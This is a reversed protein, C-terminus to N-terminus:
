LLTKDQVELLYKLEMKIVCIAPGGILKKDNVIAKINVCGNYLINM